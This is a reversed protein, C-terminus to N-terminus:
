FKLRMVAGGDPLVAQFDYGQTLYQEIDGTPIVRQKAGNDAMRGLLKDRLIHQFEENTIVSLDMKDIEEQKYGATM